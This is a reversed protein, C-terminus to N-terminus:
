ENKKNKIENKAKKYHSVVFSFFWIIILASIIYKFNNMILM